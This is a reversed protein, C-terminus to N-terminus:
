CIRCFSATAVSSIPFLETIGQVIAYIIVQLTTMDFGQGMSKQIDIWAEVNVM